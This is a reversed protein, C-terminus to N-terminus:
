GDSPTSGTPSGSGRPSGDGDVSNGFGFSGSVHATDWSGGALGLTASVDAAVPRESLALLEDGSRRPKRGPLAVGFSGTAADAGAGQGSSGRETMREPAMDLGELAPWDPEDGISSMGGGLESRTGAASGGGGLSSLQASELASRGFPANQGLASPLMGHGSSDHSLVTDLRLEGVSREVAAMDDDTSPGAAYRAVGSTRELPFPGFGSRVSAIGLPFVGEGAGPMPALGMVSAPAGTDTSADSPPGAGSGGGDSLMSPPAAASGLRSRGATPAVSASSTTNTPGSTSVSTQAGPVDGEWSAGVADAGHLDTLDERGLLSGDSVATLFSGAAALDDRTTSPLTSPQPVSGLGDSLSLQDSPEEESVALSNSQRVRKANGQAASSSMSVDGSGSTERGDDDVSCVGAANSEGWGGAVPQSGGPRSTDGSTSAGDVRSGSRMALLLSRLTAAEPDDGEFLHPFTGQLASM